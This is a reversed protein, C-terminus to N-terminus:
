QLLHFAQESIHILFGKSNEVVERIINVIATSIFFKSSNVQSCRMHYAEPPNSSIKNPKVDIRLGNLLRTDFLVFSSSIYRTFMLFISHFSEYSTYRCYAVIHNYNFHAVSFCCQTQFLFNFNSRTIVRIHSSVHKIPGTFKM